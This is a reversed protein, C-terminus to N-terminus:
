GLLHAVLLLQSHQSAPKGFISLSPMLGSGAKETCQNDIVFLDIAQDLLTRKSRSM